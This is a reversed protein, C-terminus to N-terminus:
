SYCSGFKVKFANFAGLFMSNFLRFRLYYFNCLFVLIIYNCFKFPLNQGVNSEDVQFLSTKLNITSIQFRGSWIFLYKSHQLLKILNQFVGYFNRENAKM